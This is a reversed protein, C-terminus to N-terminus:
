AFIRVGLLKLVRGDTRLDVLEGYAKRRLLLAVLGDFPSRGEAEKVDLTEALAPVFGDPESVEAVPVFTTGDVFTPALRRGLEVKM